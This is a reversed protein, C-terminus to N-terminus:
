VRFAVFFSVMSKYQNHNRLKLWKKYAKDSTKRRLDKEKEERLQKEHQKRDVGTCLLSVVCMSVYIVNCVKKREQDLIKKKKDALWSQYSQKASHEQKDHVAVVRELTEQPNSTFLSRIRTRWEEAFKTMGTPEADRDMTHNEVFTEDFPIYPSLIRRIHTDFEEKTVIGGKGLGNESAARRLSVIGKQLQMQHHPDLSKGVDKLSLEIAQLSAMSKRRHQQKNAIRLREEEDKKFKDLNKRVKDLHNPLWETWPLEREKRASDFQWYLSKTIEQKLRETSKLQERKEDVLQTILQKKIETREETPIAYWVRWYGQEDRPLKVAKSQVKEEWVWTRIKVNLQHQFDRRGDTDLVWSEIRYEIEQLLAEPPVIHHTKLLYEVDEKTLPHNQGNLAKQFDKPKVPGREMEQKLKNGLWEKWLIPTKNDMAVKDNENINEHHLDADQALSAIDRSAISSSNLARLVAANPIGSGSNNASGIRKTLRLHLLYRRLWDASIAHGPGGGFVHTPLKEDLEASVRILQDARDRYLAAYQNAFDVVLHKFARIQHDNLFLRGAIFATHLLRDAVWEQRQSQVIVGRPPVMTYSDVFGLHVQILHYCDTKKVTERLQDELVDKVRQQQAATLPLKEAARERSRQAQHLLRDQQPSSSSLLRRSASATPVSSSSNRRRDASQSRLTGSKTGMPATTAVASTHHSHQSPGRGAVVGTPGTPASRGLRPASSPRPKGQATSTGQRTPTTTATVAPQATTGPLTSDPRVRQADAKSPMHSTLQLFARNEAGWDIAQPVLLPQQQQQQQQQQQSQSQLQPKNQNQNKRTSLATDLAAKASGRNQAYILESESDTDQNYKDINYEYQEDHDHFEFEEDYPSGPMPRADTWHNNDTNGSVVAPTPTTVDVKLSGTGEHTNNDIHNIDNGLAQDLSEGRSLARAGASATKPRPGAAKSKLNEIYDEASLKEIDEEKMDKAREQRQQQQQQQQQQPQLRQSQSDIPRGHIDYAGAQWNRFSTTSELVAPAPAPPPGVTTASQKSSGSSNTVTTATPVQPQPPQQDGDEDIEALYKDVKEQCLKFFYPVDILLQGYEDEGAACITHAMRLALTSTALELERKTELDQNIGMTTALSTLKADFDRVPIKGDSGKEGFWISVDIDRNSATVVLLATEMALLEHTTVGGLSEKASTSM